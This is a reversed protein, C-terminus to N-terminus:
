AGFTVVLRFGTIGDGDVLPRQVKQTELLSTVCQILAPPADAQETTLTMIGHSGSGTVTVSGRAASDTATVERYCSELPRQLQTNVKSAIEPAM